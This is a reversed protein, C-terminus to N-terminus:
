FIPSAMVADGTSPVSLVPLEDTEQENNTPASPPSVGADGPLFDGEAGDDVAQAPLSEQTFEAVTACEISVPERRSSSLLVGISPGHTECVERNELEVIVTLYTREAFAPHAAIICLSVALLGLKIGM